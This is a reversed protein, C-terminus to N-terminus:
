IQVRKWVSIIAGVISLISIISLILGITQTTKSIDQDVIIALSSIAASIVLLSGLYKKIKRSLLFILGSLILIGGSSYLIALYHLDPETTYIYANTYLLFASVSLVITIIIKKSLTL